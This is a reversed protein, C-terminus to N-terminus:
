THPYQQLKVSLYKVVFAVVSFIRASIESANARTPGLMVATAHKSKRTRAIGFEDINRGPGMNAAIFTNMARRMDSMIIYSVM